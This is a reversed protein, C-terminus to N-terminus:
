PTPVEDPLLGARRLDAWLAGPIELEFLEVNTAVEQASRAGVVVTAVAPHGLPFQLAAAALPVGHRACVEQLALARALTAADTPRYDFRAGPRPDALLGSNFVGGALVAVGREVCAPLLEGLGSQDLLTYRGALLVCDLDAERVLAALLPAQNMGASVAGITGEARMRVLEPLAGEVAERHHEDPDHVHLVDVRGLGLRELSEELSRRTATASFDFVPDLGTGEGWFDQGGPRGSGSPRLLRGVKTALVYEDRAHPRLAAGLRQESLGSGYLPATDFWRLGLDWAREVAGRAQDDGVAAFLGGLPATGLGLRTVRLPTRGLPVQETARM